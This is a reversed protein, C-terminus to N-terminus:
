ARAATALHYLDGGAPPDAGLYQRFLQESDRDDLFEFGARGLHGEMAERSFRWLPYNFVLRTNAGGAAAAVGLARDVDPPDLYSLVGELVVVVGGGVSLGVRELDAILTEPYDTRTFDCGVLRVYRPIAVAAGALVDQKRALQSALDVEFVLARQAAIEPMRLGRCDFGAGLILIQRLGTRLGARVADDIYRTRLRISERVFPAALMLATADCEEPGRAFLHAFPDDFLRDAAPLTAEHARLWAVAAATDMVDAM